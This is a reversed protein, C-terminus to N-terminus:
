RVLSKNYSCKAESSMLGLAGNLIEDFEESKTETEAQNICNYNSNQLCKNFYSTPNTNKICEDEEDWWPIVKFETSDKSNECSNEALDMKKIKM